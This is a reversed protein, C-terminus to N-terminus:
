GTAEIHRSIEFEADDFLNAKAESRVELKGRLGGCAREGTSLRLSIAVEQIAATVAKSLMLQEGCYRGEEIV